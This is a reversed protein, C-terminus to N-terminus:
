SGGNLKDEVCKQLEDLDEKTCDDSAIWIKICEKMLM